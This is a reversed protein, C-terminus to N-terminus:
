YNTKLNRLTASSHLTFEGPLRDPNVNVVLDVTVFVIATTTAGPAVETSSATYYRFVPINQLDNRIFNSITSVEENALNYSLPTGTANTVGKKLSTGSLFYRVRETSADRDIDSYFAFSTTATSIIPYEGTDAYAVERIDRVMRDVGRRAEDVQVAQEFTNTNARYFTLISNVVVSMVLATIGIVVLMEVITYGRCWYGQQVTGPSFQNRINRSSKPPISGQHFSSTRRSLLVFLPTLTYGRTKM